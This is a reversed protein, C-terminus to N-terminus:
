PIIYTIVLEPHVSTFDGSLFKMYDAASDNNDDMGFRLRIQTRGLKNIANRAAANMTLSYYSSVPTSNFAGAANVTATSNFDALELAGAGFTGTQIDAWVSGLITFPDTGVPTGNQKIRLVVSQLVATDPILTTNFSLISRYQKDAVEDGLRFTTATSDMTGGVGSTESSELIWGDEIAISHLTLTLPTPTPTTTKTSTPTSTPTSTLTLTATPTATNTPTITKTPTKTITSTSTATLTETLTPTSSATTTLTVTSTTTSAITPSLTITSTPTVSATNTPTSTPTATTTVITPASFVYAAGIRYASNDSQNGNIGSANSSEGSAGVFVTNDSIAVSSGFVDSSDTNSAKLYTYQNWVNNVSAFLYVAGSGPAANSAQYGNVGIANSDEYPAGVVVADGSVAVTTGFRDDDGPNSAKLYAQQSWVTGNRTFIYAAGASLISNDAQNGNVGMASSDESESGVVVTDASIAVAGGFFDAQQSNSAKLYAQQSWISGNRTFIYAAGSESALNDAQNGNVGTAASDEYPAGVVLTDGSISLSTAFFDNANANSATLTAQQNWTSGTRTFVYAIGANSNQYPAGVVLTDGFIALARGFHNGGVSLRAQQSWVNGNRVFVYVAGAGSAANSAIVAVTDGSIAVVEGFRASNATDSAKLYAQQSWTNGSRTFIYAAGSDMASNDAQNGDVGTSNSAEYPAGVIAIDGDIAVSFGFQDSADPNSAKIYAQQLIDPWSSPPLVATITPTPTISPTLTQTPTKSPTVPTPTRTVTPTSTSTSTLTPTLTQTTTPTGTSTRTATITRTPTITRTETVTPTITPTLTNIRVITYFEGDIYPLGALANGTTDNITANIPVDVRITGDGSGTNVFINRTKGSGTISTISAGTVGSTSLVFDNIDVNTVIESFTVVFKVSSATSPDPDAREIGDISPPIFDIKWTYSASSTSVNGIADQAYVQLKHTGSELGTYTIPSTCIDDPDLSEDLYCLFTNTGDSNSLTFTASSSTTPNSPGSTIQVSAPGTRDITYTEGSLYSGNLHNYGFDQITNNNILNLHITGEGQGTYVDLYYTSGDIKWPNPVVANVISGTTTLSFDAEDVNFVPESFTVTFRVYSKNSPNASSRVSSVVTPAVVDKEFKAIYALNPNGGMNSFSGGIYVDLGDVVVAYIVGTNLANLHYSLASWNTGDWKAISNSEDMGLQILAGAAYVTTGSVIISTVSGNIGTGLASWSSGDWWAIFDANPDNGADHFDGGAYLKTGSPTLVRVKASLPTPGLASWATGDWKAVYDANPDGGANTFGGGVYVNGNMITITLITDIPNTAPQITGLASWATGNWKAIYDANPDGGANSFYGGAYLDTGNIAITEVFDNLPSTTVASWSTGDWKAIYDANPDGGANTFDGSAYLTTGDFVISSVGSNLGTGLASWSTGDWRAIYDANPNGGANTFWGGVYLYGGNKVMTQVYNNLPTAGLPNWANETTLPRFIPRPEPNLNIDYNKTNLPGTYSSTLDLVGDQDLLPTNPMAASEVPSAHAQSSITGLLLAVTLFTCFIRFISKISIMNVVKTM